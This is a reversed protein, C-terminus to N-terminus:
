KGFAPIEYVVEDLAQGSQTVVQTERVIQGGLSEPIKRSAINQRAVPYIFSDVELHTKAWDVLVTIAERGYRHGHASAKLWLGLEPKRGNNKGHLGCCGLFEGTERQLIVLQLNNGAQMTEQSHRIFARTDDITEPPKPFMYRTIAATFEHFIDTEYKNTIPVLRVREGVIEVASLTLPSANKFQFGTM